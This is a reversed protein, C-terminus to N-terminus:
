TSEDIERANENSKEMEMSVLISLSRFSFIRASSIFCYMKKKQKTRYVLHIFFEVCCVFLCLFGRDYM